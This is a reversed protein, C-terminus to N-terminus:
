SRRQWRRSSRMATPACADWEAPFGMLWRSHAPNLQGPNGTAAPFGTPPTGPLHALRAVENLPRANEGHKNSACSKWDRASATPWTAVNSADVRVTVPTSVSAPAATSVSNEVMRVADTLTTGSHRGSATSYNRAGSSAADQTTTTPWPALKHMESKAAHGSVLAVTRRASDTNGAENYGKQAPTGAMPSPWGSIQAAQCLDQPGGKRAIERVTGEFTRVNKEGDTERATPWGTFGSDSTRLASATHAWLRRGAPTAKEKWTERFLISGHLLAQLRSALFSTLNASASSISGSPGCTGRTQSDKKSERRVSPSVHVPARGFLDITAGAPLDCLTPGAPSAPSSTVNRSDECIAPKSKESIESM